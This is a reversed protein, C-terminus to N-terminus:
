LENKWNDPGNWHVAREATAERLAVRFGNKEDFSIRRLKGIILM